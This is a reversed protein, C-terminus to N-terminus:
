EKRNKSKLDSLMKFLLNRTGFKHFPIDFKDYEECSKDNKPLSPSKIGNEGWRSVAEPEEIYLNDDQIYESFNTDVHYLYFQTMFM